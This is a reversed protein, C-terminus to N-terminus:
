AEPLTPQPAANDASRGRFPTVIYRRLATVIWQWNLALHLGVLVLSLNASLEHLQHWAGGRVTAIGVIRMVSESILFGTFIAVTMSIFLLADLVYNARAFWNIRHLLRKTLAAIWQWNLLLHTVIAAAFAISLWEHVAVGSWHPAMIVLFAVFTASDLLLNFRDLRHQKRVAPQIKM